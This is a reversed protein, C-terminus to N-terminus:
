CKTMVNLNNWNKKHFVFPSTLFIQEIEIRLFTSKHQSAHFLVMYTDYFEDLRRKRQIKLQRFGNFLKTNANPM